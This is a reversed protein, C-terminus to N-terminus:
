KGELWKTAKTIIKDANEEFLTQTSFQGIYPFGKKSCEYAQSLVDVLEGVLAKAEEHHQLIDLLDNATIGGSYQCLPQKWVDLHAYLMRVDDKVEKSFEDDFYVITEQIREIIADMKNKM